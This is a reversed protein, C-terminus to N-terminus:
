YASEEYNDSYKRDGKKTIPLLIAKRWDESIIEKQWVLSHMKQLDSVFYSLHKFLEVRLGDEGLIKNAKSLKVTAESM